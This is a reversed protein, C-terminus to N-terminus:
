QNVLRSYEREFINKIDEFVAETDREGNIVFIKEGSKGLIEKAKHHNERLKKSFDLNAEFRHEKGRISVEEKDMRKRAEEPSIDVIFTMDPIPLNSHRAILGDMNLGQASQYTITSLKYRDSIVFLGMGLIPKILEEVHKKRDSIFLDALKEAETMPDDDSTIVKRIEADRYPERTLVVHNYKDRKFIHKVLKRIQTSKGCGDIGEFVIFIGKEGMREGEILLLVIILTM